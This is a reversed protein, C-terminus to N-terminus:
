IQQATVTGFSGSSLDIRIYNNNPVLITFPFTCGGTGGEAIINTPASSISYYQSTCKATASAPLVLPITLFVDSGTTNHWQSGSSLTPASPYGSVQRSIGSPSICFGGAVASGPIAMNGILYDLQTSYNLSPSQWGGTLQISGNLYIGTSSSAVTFSTHGQTLGGDVEAYINVTGSWISAGKLWFLKGSNTAASSFNGTMTWNVGEHEIFGGSGLSTEDVIASQNAACYVYLSLVKWYDFSPFGSTGVAFDMGITNNSLDVDIFTNLESWGVQNYFYFGKGGSLSFNNIALESFLADSVDSWSIGVATGTANTGDLVFGGWRPGAFAGTSPATITLSSALSTAYSEITTLAKGMGQIAYPLNGSGNAAFSGWTSIKYTGYGFLVIGGGATIAAAQANTYATQDATANGVGTAGATAYTPNGIYFSPVYNGSLLQQLIMNNVSQVSTVVLVTAGASFAYATQTGAFSEVNRVVTLTTGSLGTVLMIEFTSSTGVTTGNMVLIHYQANTFGTASTLGFTTQSTTAIGSSNVTGSVGNVPVEIAM